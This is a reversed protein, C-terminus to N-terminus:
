QTRKATATAPSWAVSTVPRGSRGVRVPREGAPDRWSQRACLCDMKREKQQAISQKAESAIVSRAARIRAGNARLSPERALFVKEGAVLQPTLKRLSCSSVNLSVIAINVGGPVADPSKGNSPFQSHRSRCSRAAAKVVAALPPQKAAPMATGAFHVQNEAAERVGLDCAELIVFQGLQLM